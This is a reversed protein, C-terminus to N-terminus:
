AQHMSRPEIFHLLRGSEAGDRRYSHFRRDDCCTCADEIAGIKSAVLGLANLETRVLARLDLRAHGPRSGFTARDLRDDFRLRLAGLVPADVEYCCAGIAPGIVACIRRAGGPGLAAIGAEVVGAALGRWGAHIAVVKSADGNAALIPVCDATVIGVPGGGAGSVIADAEEPRVDGKSDVTAVVKGHVQFPRAVQLPSRAARTGFGHEVGLSDLVPHCLFGRTM